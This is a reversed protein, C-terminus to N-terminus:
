DSSDFVTRIIEWPVANGAISSALGARYKALAQDYSMFRGGARQRRERYIRNFSQLDGRDRAEALAGNLRMVAAGAKALVAAHDSLSVGLRGAASRVAAAGVPEPVALFRGKRPATRLDCRVALDVVMHADVVQQCWWAAECRPLERGAGLQIGARTSIIFVAALDFSKLYDAIARDLPPIPM